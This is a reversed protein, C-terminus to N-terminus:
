VEVSCERRVCILVVDVDVGPGISDLRSHSGDSLSAGIVRCMGDEQGAVVPRVYRGEDGVARCGREGLDLVDVACLVVEDEVDVGVEVRVATACVRGACGVIDVRELSQAAPQTGVVALRDQGLSTATSSVARAQRHQALLKVRHVVVAIDEEAPNAPGSALESRAILQGLRRRQTATRPRILLQHLLANNSLESSLYREDLVSPQDIGTSRNCECARVVSLQSQQEASGARAFRSQWWVKLLRKM